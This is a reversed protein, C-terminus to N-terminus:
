GQRAKGQGARGKREGKVRKGKLSVQRIKLYSILSVRPPHPVSLDRM